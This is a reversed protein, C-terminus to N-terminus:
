IKPTPPYLTFVRSKTSEEYYKYRAKITEWLAARGITIIILAHKM